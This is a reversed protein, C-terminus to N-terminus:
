TFNSVVISEALIYNSRFQLTVPDPAAFYYHGKQSNTLKTFISVKSESM